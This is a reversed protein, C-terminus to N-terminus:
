VELNEIVCGLREGGEMMYIYFRYPGPQLDADFIVDNIGADLHVPRVIKDVEVQKFDSLDFVTVQMVADRAEGKNDVGVHVGDGDYSVTAISYSLCGASVAVVALLLILGTVVGIRSM